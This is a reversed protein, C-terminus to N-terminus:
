CFYVSKQCSILECQTHTHTRACTTDHVQGAEITPHPVDHPRWIADRFIADFSEGVAEAILHLGPSDFDGYNLRSVEDHGGSDQGTVNHGARGVLQPILGGRVHFLIVPLNVELLVHSQHARVAVAPLLVDGGNQVVDGVGDPGLTRVGPVRGLLWVPPDSHLQHGMQGAGDGVEQVESLPGTGAPVSQNKVGRVDAAVELHTANFVLPTRRCKCDSM